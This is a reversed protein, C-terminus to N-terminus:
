GIMKKVQAVLKDADPLYHKELKPQFAIHTFPAAVRAVPADLWDFLNEQLDAAIEAGVGMIKKAEHIIVCRNTKKVSAYITDMDIPNVSLLDIVEAEIGDAKLKDAAKMAELLMRGISVITIDKGERTVMAKGIPCIYDETPIEMKLKYSSLPEVYLVPNDDRIAAKMLGKATYSNSPMVVKMGPMSAFWAELSSSHHPGAGFGGATMARVVMPVKVQGGFMWRMKSAQNYFEEVTLTIFNMFMIEAVPRLGSAAAGVCLGVIAGESIPTDVCRGAGFQDILGRTVGFPGGPKGVDEGIIFVSPDREMEEKIAENIAWQVNLSKTGAM